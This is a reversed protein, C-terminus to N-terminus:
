GLRVGEVVELLFSFFFSILVLYLCLWSFYPSRITFRVLELWGFMFCIMKGSWDGQFSVRFFLSLVRKM